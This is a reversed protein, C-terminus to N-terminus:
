NLKSHCCNKIHPQVLVRTNHHTKSRCFNVRTTPLAMLEIRTCFLTVKEEDREALPHPPLVIGFWIISTNDHQPPALGRGRHKARHLARYVGHLTHSPDFNDWRKAGDNGARRSTRAPVIIGWGRGMKCM